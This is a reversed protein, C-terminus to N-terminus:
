ASGAPDIARQAGTVQDVIVVRPWYMASYDRIVGIRAAIVGAKATNVNTWQSSPDMLLVARRQSCFASAPGWLASRDTDSQLQDRPLLLLNFLDVERRLFKFHQLLQNGILTLRHGVSAQQLRDPPGFIALFGFVQAHNYILQALFDLFIRRLWFVNEGFGPDAVAEM